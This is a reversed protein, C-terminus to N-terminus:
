RTEGIITGRTFAVESYDGFAIINKGLVEVEVIVYKGRREGYQHVKREERAANLSTFAHLGEDITGFNPWCDGNIMVSGFSEMAYKDYAKQGDIPLSKGERDYAILKGSKPVKAERIVSQYGGGGIREYVKYFTYTWDDYIVRNYNVDLCM